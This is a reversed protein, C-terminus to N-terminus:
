IEAKGGAAKAAGEVIEGLRDAKMREFWRQGRLGGDGKNTYYQKKAYPVGYIVRGEGPTSYSYPSSKLAGTDYPVYPECFEIVTNDIYKQVAGGEELGHERKIEDGDKLELRM